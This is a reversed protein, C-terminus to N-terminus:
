PSDGLGAGQVAHLVNSGAAQQNHLGLQQASERLQSSLGVGALVDGTEVHFEANAAVQDRVERHIGVKGVRIDVLLL